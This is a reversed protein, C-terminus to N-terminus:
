CVLNTYTGECELTAFSVLAHVALAHQANCGSVVALQDLIGDLADEHM